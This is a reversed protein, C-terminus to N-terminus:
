KTERHFAAWRPRAPFYDAASMAPGARTAPRDGERLGPRPGGRCPFADSRPPSRIAQWMGERGIGGVAYLARRGAGRDAGALSGSLSDQGLIRLDENFDELSPSLVIAEIGVAHARETLTAMAGDGAPDDDRAIYLRRLTDPFLLAALHAASLAAAVPMAPLVQRLSLMTEIGEGAAMVQGPWASGYPTDSSTAWRGGRRTSRRRATQARIWALPALYTRHAGTIRGNLDTVVAIM